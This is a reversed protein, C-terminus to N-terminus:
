FVKVHKKYNEELIEFGGKIAEIGNLVVPDKIEFVLNVNGDETIAELIKVKGESEKETVYKYLSYFLISIASCVIDKGYEAYGAHGKISVSYMGYAEKIKIETM